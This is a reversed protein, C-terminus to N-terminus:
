MRCCSIARMQAAAHRAGRLARIGLVDDRTPVGLLRWGRCIRWDGGGGIGTEPVIGIGIGIRLGAGSESGNAPVADPAESTGGGCSGRM